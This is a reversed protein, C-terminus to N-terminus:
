DEDPEVGLNNLADGIANVDLEDVANMLSWYSVTDPNFGHIAWCDVTVPDQASDAPYYIIDINWPNEVDVTDKVTLTAIAAGSYGPIAPLDAQCYETDREWDLDMSAKRRSATADEDPTYGNAMLVDVIDQIDLHEVALEADEATEFPSGFGFDYSDLYAETGNALPLYMDFVWEKADSVHAVYVKNAQGAPLPKNQYGPIPPLLNSYGANTKVWSSMSIFATRKVSKRIM